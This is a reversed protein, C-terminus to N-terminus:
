KQLMTNSPISWASQKWQFDRRGYGHMIGGIEHLLLGADAMHKEKSQLEVNGACASVVTPLTSAGDRHMAHFTDGDCMENYALSMDSLELQQLDM